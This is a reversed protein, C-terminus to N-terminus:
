RKTAFMRRTLRRIATKLHTAVEKPMCTSPHAAHISPAPIEFFYHNIKQQTVRQDTEAICKKLYLRYGVLYPFKLPVLEDHSEVLPWNQGWREDDEAVHRHYELMHTASPPFVLTVRIFSVIAQTLLLSAGAAPLGGAIGMPLRPTPPGM